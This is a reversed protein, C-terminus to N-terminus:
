RNESPALAIAEFGRNLHRRAALAPLCAEVHDAQSNPSGQPVLRRIIRGGGDVRVLSPGYEEGVWFGGDSLAAIGETDMGMPDAAIPQGALDYAPELLLHDGGPTPGGPIPKGRPDTLPVIAGLEVEQRDIRLKALYPGLDLRPMVKADSRGRCRQPAGWGYDMIATKVKLNTGRGAVAWVVDKENPDRALGSGIGHRIVLKRGPFEVEGIPDDRWKLPVVEVRSM